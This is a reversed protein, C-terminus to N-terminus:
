QTNQGTRIPRPLAIHQTPHLHRHTTSTHDGVPYGGSFAINKVQPHNDNLRFPQPNRIEHLRHNQHSHRKTIPHQFIIRRKFIFGSIRGGGLVSGSPTSKERVMSLSVILEDFSHSQWRRSLLSFILWFELLDLEPQDNAQHGDFKSDYLMSLSAIFM